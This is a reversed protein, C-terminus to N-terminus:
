KKAAYIELFKSVLKASEKEKDAAIIQQNKILSALCSFDSAAAPTSQLPGSQIPAVPLQAQSSLIMSPIALAHEAKEEPPANEKDEEIVTEEQFEDKVFAEEVRPRKGTRLLKPDESKRRVGSPGKAPKDTELSRSRVGSPGPVPEDPLVMQNLDNCRGTDLTKRGHQISPLLEIPFTQISNQGSFGISSKQKLNQFFLNFSPFKSYIISNFSFRLDNKPM